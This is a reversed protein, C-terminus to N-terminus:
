DNNSATQYGFYGPTAVNTEYGPYGPTTNNYTSSGYPDNQPPSRIDHSHSSLSSNSRYNYNKIEMADRLVRSRFELKQEIDFSNLIPGLSSFFALDDAAIDPTQNKLLTLLDREFPSNEQNKQQPKNKRKQSWPRQSTGSGVAHDNQDKQLTNSSAQHTPMDSDQTNESPVTNGPLAMNDMNAPRNEKLSEVVENLDSQTLFSLEDFYIYKKYKPAASGSPTKKMANKTRFYADRATKWRQQILKALQQKEEEMVNEYLTTVIDEWSKNRADKNRYLADSADWLHRRLRVEDIVRSTDVDHNSM